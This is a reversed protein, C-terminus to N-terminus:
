INKLHSKNKLTGDHQMSHSFSDILDMIVTYWNLGCAVLGCAFSKSDFCDIIFCMKINLNWENVVSFLVKICIRQSTSLILDFYKILDIFYWVWIFYYKHLETNLIICPYLEGRLNWRNLKSHRFVARCLSMVEIHVTGPVVSAPRHLHEKFM